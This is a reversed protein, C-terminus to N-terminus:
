DIFIPVLFRGIKEQVSQVLEVISFGFSFESKSNWM